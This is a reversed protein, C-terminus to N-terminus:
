TCGLPHGNMVWLMLPKQQRSSERLGEAYSPHWDIEEWAAEAPTPLIRDRYNELTATSLGGNENSAADTRPGAEDGCATMFVLLALAGAALGRRGM